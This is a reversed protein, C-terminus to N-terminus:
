VGSPDSGFTDNGCDIEVIRGPELRTAGMMLSTYVQIPQSNLDERISVRNMMEKWIGLYVGRYTLAICKRVTGGATTTPLRDSVIIDWGLLNGVMGDGLPSGNPRYLSNVVQQQQMLDLWQQPGIILCKPERMDVHLWHFIAMAGEIKKVTLGTTTSGDDYTSSVTLGTSSGTAATQAQAWTETSSNSGTFDTGTVSTGFCASILADDYSRGVANAADAIFSSEPRIMTEAQEFQDIIRNDQYTQPSVWRRMASLNNLPLPAGAAGGAQMAFPATYQVPSAGKGVHQGEQVKGRLLSGQQQLRLELATSYQITALQVDFDFNAM